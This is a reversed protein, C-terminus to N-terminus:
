NDIVTLLHIDYVIISRPPIKDNDGLLGHALHPPLILKARQGQHMLLIGMELGSEVGGHGVLFEKPKGNESSYCFTGDLLTVKYDLIVINGAVPKPGTPEEWILYFLGSKNEEVGDLRHRDIYAEISERDKDVLGKNIKELTKKTDSLSFGPRKEERSNCGVFLVILFLIIIQIFRNKM